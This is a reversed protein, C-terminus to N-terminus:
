TSDTALFRRVAVAQERREGRGTFLVHSQVLCLPLPFSPLYAHAFSPLSLLWACAAQKCHPSVLTLFSVLLYALFAAVIGFSM